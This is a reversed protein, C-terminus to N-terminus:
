RAAAIVPAMEPHRRLAERVTEFHILAGPTPNNESKQWGYCQGKVVHPYIGSLGLLLVAGQDLVEIMPRAEIGWAAASDIADAVTGYVTLVLDEDAMEVRAEAITPNRGHHTVKWQRAHHCMRAFRLDSADVKEGMIFQLELEEGHRIVDETLLRDASAHM